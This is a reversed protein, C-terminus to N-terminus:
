PEDLCIVRGCHTTVPRGRSLIHADRLGTARLIKRLQSVSDCHEIFLSPNLTAPLSQLGSLNCEALHLPRRFLCQLVGVLQRREASPPGSIAVCVPVDSREALWTALASFSVLSTQLRTLSTNERIVECISKFLEPTSGYPIPPVPFREANLV